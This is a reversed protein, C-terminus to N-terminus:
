ALTRSKRIRHGTIPILQSCKPCKKNETIKYQTVTYNFRQILMENCKPCYTNEYKHGQVNGIYPYNVGQEKATNYAKELTEIPTPPNTFKYAPNYRTFHLPTDNGVHKLHKKIIWHLCEENDNVDTIILNVIEVHIGMKKAEHANRWIKEVDAGDCHKKYTEKNGKIDIKLGTLGAEKLLKLTQQTMYGNSVYCTYLGKQHALNFLPLNWETLITPEQFSACLGNDQQHQALNIIKEPNFHHSNKTPNPTKKSLHHNQCWPCNFNCSWTSFTLATSGPWYHFFPKIEIPRSELASLDGYILTFLTGDINLRTKCRGTNNPHITCRWECLNCRTKNGRQKEYLQAEHVVPLRLLESFELQQQM